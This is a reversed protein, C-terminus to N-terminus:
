AQPHPVDLGQGSRRRRRIAREEERLPTPHPRTAASRHSGGAGELGSRTAGPTRTPGALLQRAVQARYLGAEDTGRDTPLLAHCEQRERTCVGYRFHTTASDTGYALPIDAKKPFDWEKQRAHHPGRSKVTTFHCAMSIASTIKESIQRRCRTWVPPRFLFDASHAARVM